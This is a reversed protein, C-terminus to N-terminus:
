TGSTASSPLATINKTALLCQLLSLHYHCVQRYLFQAVGFQRAERLRIIGILMLLLLAADTALVGATNPVFEHTNYAVCSLFDSNYHSRLQASM